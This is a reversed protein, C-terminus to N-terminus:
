ADTSSEAETRSPQPRSWGDDLGLLKDVSYPGPGSLLIVLLGALLMLPIQVGAGTVPAFGEKRDWLFIAILMHISAAIAVQRSVLGLIMLSGGGYLLITVFWGIFTPFPLGFEAQSLAGFEAPSFHTGHAILVSGTVLRVILPAVPALGQVPPVLLPSPSKM